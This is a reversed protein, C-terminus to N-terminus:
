VLQTADIAVIDASPCESAPIKSQNVHKTLIDVLKSKAEGVYNLERGSDMFSLCVSSLEYHGIISKTDIERQAFFNWHGQFEYVTQNIKLCIRYVFLHISLIWSSLVALPSLGMGLIVNYYLNSYFWTIHM